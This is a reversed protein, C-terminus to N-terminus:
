YWLFNWNWEWSHVAGLKEKYCTFVEWCYSMWPQHCLYGKLKKFNPCISTGPFKANLDASYHLNFMGDQLKSVGAYPFKKQDFLEALWRVTSKCLGVIEVASGDRFCLTNLKVQIFQAINLERSNVKSSVVVRFLSFSEFRAWSILEGKLEGFHNLHLKERYYRYKIWCVSFSFSWVYWCSMIKIQSDATCNKFPLTNSNLNIDRNGTGM